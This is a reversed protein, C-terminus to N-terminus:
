KLAYGKKYIYKGIKFKKNIYAKELVTSTIFDSDVCIFFQRDAQEVLYYHQNINAMQDAVQFAGPGILFDAIWEKKSLKKLRTLVHIKDANPYKALVCADQKYYVGKQMIEYDSLNIKEKIENLTFDNSDDILYDISINLLDSISKLNEIDPMGKGTEWKTVAQRSVRLKEALQEQSYGSSKRAKRIKESINM